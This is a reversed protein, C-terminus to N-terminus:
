QLKDSSPIESQTSGDREYLARLEDAQSKLASNSREFWDIWRALDNGFTQGTRTQLATLIFMLDVNPVRRRSAFRRVGAVLESLLDLDSLVSLSDYSLRWWRSDSPIDVDLPGFLRWHWAESLTLKRIGSVGISASRPFTGDVLSIGSVEMSEVSICVCPHFFVDEYFDGPKIDEMRDIEQTM